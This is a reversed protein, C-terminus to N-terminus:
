KDHVELEKELDDLHIDEQVSIVPTLLPEINENTSVHTCSEDSLVKTLIFQPSRIHRRQHRTHFYKIGGSIAGSVWFANGIQNTGDIALHGVVAGGLGVSMGDVIARANSHKRTSHNFLLSVREEDESSNMNVLHSYDLLQLDEIRTDHMFEVVEDHDPKRHNVQEFEGIFRAVRLAAREFFTIQEIDRGEALALEELINAHHDIYYWNWSERNHISVEYEWNPACHAQSPGHRQLADEFSIQLLGQSNYLPWFREMALQAQATATILISYFFWSKMIRKM